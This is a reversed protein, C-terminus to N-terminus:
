LQKAKKYDTIKILHQALRLDSEENSAIIVIHDKIRPKLLEEFWQKGDDDLNSGPEDLLIVSSQSMISLILKLRQKMGSSLEEVKKRVMNKFPLNKITERVTDLNIFPRLGHHMDLLEDVTLIDILEIYPASFAIHRYIDSTPIDTNGSSYCIKGKSPTSYGSLIKLLTSKGSGNPGRIAYCEGKKFQFDFDRLVWEYSYRKGIEKCTIVEVKPIM